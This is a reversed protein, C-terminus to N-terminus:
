QVEGSELLKGYEMLNLMRALEQEVTRDVEPLDVMKLYDMYNDLPKEDEKTIDQVAVDYLERNKNYAGSTQLLFSNRIWGAFQRRIRPDPDSSLDSLYQTTESKAEKVKTAVWDELALKQRELSDLQRYPVGFMTTMEDSNYFLKFDRSLTQSLRQRTMYDEVPNRSPTYSEQEDLRLRLMEKQLATPTARQAAGFQRMLPNPTNIPAPNFPNYYPMDYGTEVARNSSYDLQKIDPLFRTAQNQLTAWRTTDTLFNNSFYLREEGGRLRDRTYPTPAAMPDLQGYVDRSVAAPYTFTSIFSGLSKQMADVNNASPDQSVLLMNAIFSGEINFGLDTTGFTIDLLEKGIKADLSSIEEGKNMYNAIKDGLWMHFVWPGASRKLDYGGAEEGLGGVKLTEYDPSKGTAALTAGLAIASLGTAQRAIRDETRKFGEGFLKADAEDAVSLFGGVTYDGMMELHNAVYRPFPLGVGQSMLFPVRKHWTEVGNALQGFVSTDGRYGRQMTIRRAENVAEDYVSEPLDDIRKGSQLFEEVSSGLQPNNLDRLRRNLAGYFVARKITADTTSNIFNMKRAQRLLWSTDGTLAEDARSVDHFIRAFDDPKDLALMYELLVVDDNRYNMGRIYDISGKFANVAGETDQKVIGRYFGKWMQDSWDAGINLATGFMNATSTGLQSTMMAISAQDLQRAAWYTGDKLGELKGAVINKQIAEMAEETPVPVGAQKIARLENVVPTFPSAKADLGGSLQKKLTSAQQLTRGAESFDAAWIYGLEQNTLAYKEKLKRFAEPVAESGEEQKSVWTAVAQSIRQGKKRKVTTELDILAASVNRVTDLSFGRSSLMQDANTGTLVLEKIQEGTLVMDPDIAQLSEITKKVAKEAKEKSTKSITKAAEKRGNELIVRQKESMDIFADFAKDRSNASMGGFLGGTGAGIVGAIAADTAVDGWTYDYGEITEERAEQQAYAMTGAVPAEMAATLGASKAAERAVSTGGTMAAAKKGLEGKAAASQVIKKAQEKSGTQALKKLLEKRVAMQTGASAARGAFKSLVGLGGTAVTALTTPSTAFASVYDWAGESIGTGGGASMDYAEMLNGFAQKGLENSNADRAYFLDKTATTENTSQYRMHSVFDNALGEFGREKMEEKSYNYRGGSFFRVLDRKFDDNEVLEMFTKDEIGDLYNGM